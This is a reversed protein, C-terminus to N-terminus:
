MKEQVLQFFFLCATFMCMCICMEKSFNYLQTYTNLVSQHQSENLEPDYNV